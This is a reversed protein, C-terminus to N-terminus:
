IHRNARQYTREWVAIVSKAVSEYGEFPQIGVREYVHLRM